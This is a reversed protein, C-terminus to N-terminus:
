GKVNHTFNKDGGAAAKREEAKQKKEAEEAKQAMVLREYMKAFYMVVKPQAVEYLEFLQAAHSWDKGMYVGSMGDWIDSLMGYIFFAVQIEEPFDSTELPMRAPDPEQGLQECIALYKEM